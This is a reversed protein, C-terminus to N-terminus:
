QIQLNQNPEQIQLDLDLQQRRPTTFNSSNARFFPTALAPRPPALSKCQLFILIQPQAAAAGEFPGQAHYIPRSECIGLAIEEFYNQQKRSHKSIM